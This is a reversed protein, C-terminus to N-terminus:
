RVPRKKSDLYLAVSLWLMGLTLGTVVDGLWHDHLVLRSLGVLFALMVGSALTLIRPVYVMHSSIYIAVGILLFTANATHGSPFSFPDLNGVALPPRPSHIFWKLAWVSAQLGVFASLWMIVQRRGVKYISIAGVLLMPICLLKLSGFWTLTAMTEQLYPMGLTNLEAAIKINYPLFEGYCQLTILAIAVILLTVISSKFVNAPLYKTTLWHILVPLILALTLLGLILCFFETPIKGHSQVAAGALFGPMLYVPSWPISSLINVLYFRKPSMDLMGAVVPVVPRVPGIFRGLAISLDGHNHFFVEGKKLWEPHKNFPWWNRVKHHYHYGLQFSIGDGIAAGAIGWLLMTVPSMLGSGALAGLAFMIAVGPVFLGVIVLSELLAMLAITPGLWESHLQLWTQIVEFSPVHM